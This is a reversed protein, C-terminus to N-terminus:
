CSRSVAMQVLIFPSLLVPLIECLLRKLFAFFHSNFIMGSRPIYTAQSGLGTIYIFLQSTHKVSLEFLPWSHM